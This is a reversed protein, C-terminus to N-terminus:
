CTQPENSPSGDHCMRMACRKLTRRSMNGFTCQQCQRIPVIPIGSDYVTGVFCRMTPIVFEDRSILPATRRRISTAPLIVRWITWTDRFVRPKYRESFAKNSSPSRGLPNGPTDLDCAAGTSSAEETSLRGVLAAAEHSSSSMGHKSRVVVGSMGSFSGKGAVFSFRGRNSSYKREVNLELAKM